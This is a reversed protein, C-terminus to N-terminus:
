EVPTIRSSMDCRENSSCEIFDFGEEVGNTGLLRVALLRNWTEMAPGPKM